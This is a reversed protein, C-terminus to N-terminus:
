VLEDLILGGVLLDDADTAGGAQGLVGVDALHDLFSGLTSSNKTIADYAVLHLRVIAFRDM